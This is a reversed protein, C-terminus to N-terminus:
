NRQADQLPNGGAAHLLREVIEDIIRGRGPPTWCSVLWNPIFHTTQETRRSPDWWASQQLQRLLAEVEPFNGNKIIFLHGSDLAPLEEPLWEDRMKNRPVVCGPKLGLEGYLLGNLPHNVMGQFRVRKLLVQMVTVSELSAGHLRRRAAETKEELQHITHRAEQERGVLEAIELHTARWDLHHKVFLTPAIQKLSEQVPQHYFDAIILDPKVLRLQEYQGLLRQAYLTDDMGPMWSCDIAVAAELGISSLNEQFHLRSATAVKLRERKIFLTPTLGVTEKFIRSFYYESGYGVDMAVEKVSINPALLEKAREIRIRNLYDTQSMGTARKFSRCFANPTLKAIDALTERSIKERYHERMYAICQDISSNVPPAPSLEPKLQPERRGRLLGDLLAQLQLDPGPSRAGRLVAAYLEEIRRQVQEADRLHIRGPALPLAPGDPANTVTWRGRLKVATLSRLVILYYEPEDAQAAAEVATGPPLHWLQGAEARCVTDNLRLLGAGHVVFCLMAAPVTKPGISFTRTRRLKRISSLLYLTRNTDTTLGFVM